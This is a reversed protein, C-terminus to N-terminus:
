RKLHSCTEREWRGGLQFQRTSHTVPQPGANEYKVWATSSVCCSKTHAGSPNERVNVSGGRRRESLLTGKLDKVWFFCWLLAVSAWMGMWTSGLVGSLGDICHFLLLCLNLNDYSVKPFVKWVANIYHKICQKAEHIITVVHIIINCM